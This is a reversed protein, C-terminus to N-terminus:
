CNYGNSIMVCRAEEYGAAVPCAWTKLPSPPGLPYLPLTLPLHITYTDTLKETCELNNTVCPQFSGM